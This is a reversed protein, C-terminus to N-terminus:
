NQLTEAQPSTVTFDPLTLRADQQFRFQIWDVGGPVTPYYYCSVQLLPFILNDNRIVVGLGFGTYFARHYLIERDPAIFGGKALLSFAFKFGYFYMPPNMVLSMTVALSKKGYFVSDYKVQNINLDQNLNTYDGNNSRSNFGYRYDAFLYGRFKFKQNPTMLLPTIYNASIKLVGDEFSNKNLYGGTVIRGSLYGLGNIFDGTSLDISGYLRDYFDSLEPGATLKILYGYPINETRGLQLVYDSLYTANVSWALGTFLRTVNYYYRNTDITVPPRATFTRKFFSELIVFRTPIHANKINIAHGGWLGIDHAYSEKAMNLIEQNGSSGSSVLKSYVFGAGGAWRTKISYFERNCSIGVSENGTNDTLYNVSTNIFTGAINNYTYSIGDFRFFPARNVEFSANTSIRDGLGLFNGDYVRISAKRTSASILDFGISWVDKTVVTIDVSDSGPSTLTVYTRVKDIFPMERLNRENDALLFPDVQQGEKFFLTNRIVFSSTKIHAANLASGIGTKADQLTDLTSTGFPDLTVVRISRIVMGRYAEFPSESKIRAAPEPLPQEEPPRFALGYLLQGFRKRSFKHYISDYFARCQQERIVDAEGFQVPHIVFFTDKKIKHTKGEYLFRSGKKVFITDGCSSGPPSSSNIQGACPTIVITLIYLLIIIRANSCEPLESIRIQEAHKM